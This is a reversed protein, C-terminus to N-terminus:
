PAPFACEIADCVGGARFLGATRLAYGPNLAAFGPTL